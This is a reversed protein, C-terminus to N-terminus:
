LVGGLGAKDAVIGIRFLGDLIYGIPKLFNVIEYLLGGESSLTIGTELLDAIFNM